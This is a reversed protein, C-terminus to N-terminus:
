ISKLPPALVQLCTKLSFPINSESGNLRLVVPIIMLTSVQIHSSVVRLSRGMQMIVVVGGVRDRCGYWMHDKNSIELM